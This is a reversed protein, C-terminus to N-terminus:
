QVLLKVYIPAKLQAVRVNALALHGELGLGHGDLLRPAVQQPAPQELPAGLGAEGGVELFEGALTHM